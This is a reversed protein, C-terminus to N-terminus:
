GFQFFLLSFSIRKKILFFADLSISSVVPLFIEFFDKINQLILKDNPRVQQDALALSLLAKVKPYSARLRVFFHTIEVLKPSGYVHTNKNVSHYAPAM